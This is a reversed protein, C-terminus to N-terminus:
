HLKPVPGPLVLWADRESAKKTVASDPDGRVRQDLVSLLQFVSRGISEIQLSILQAQAVTFM